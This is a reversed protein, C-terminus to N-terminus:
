LIFSNGPVDSGEDQTGSLCILNGDEDKEAVVQGHPDLIFSKGGIVVAFAPATANCDVVYMFNDNLIAPPSFLANYAKAVPTPVWNTNNNKTVLVESGLFTYSDIDITYWLFQADSGNSPV